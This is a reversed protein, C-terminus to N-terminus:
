AQKGLAAATRFFSHRRSSHDTVLSMAATSSATADPTQRVPAPSLAFSPDEPDAEAHAQQGSAKSTKQLSPAATGSTDMELGASKRLNAILAALTQGDIFQMAYYHVGRECGVAFVPVINSHHLQAAAQAENKFRQLQKADLTSAFPLVKLAVRRG